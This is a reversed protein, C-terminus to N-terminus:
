WNTNTTCHDKSLHSFYYNNIVTQWVVCWMRQMGHTYHLNMKYVHLQRVQDATSQTNTTTSIVSTNLAQLQGKLADLYEESATVNAAIEVNTTYVEGLGTMDAETLDALLETDNVVGELISNVDRLRDLLTQECEGCPQCGSSSLNFHFPQCSDCKTGEVGPQCNCEGLPNCSSNISGMDNCGCVPSLFPLQLEDRFITMCIGKTLIPNTLLENILVHDAAYTRVHADRLLLTSIARWVRAATSDVWGLSAPVRGLRPTVCM